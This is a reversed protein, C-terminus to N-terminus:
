PKLQNPNSQGSVFCHINGITTEAISQLAERTLFAHHSTLLVNRHNILALLIPDSIGESSYNHFFIGKENEYVDGGFYGVTGNNLADLLAKTDILGGRATNILMINKKMISFSHENLLHKTSHNLPAHLSIIDSLRFIDELSCYKVNYNYRLSGNQEIDYALINCGFGDLIKCMVAGIQGTGIIGVTKGQLNTGVLDDITFNYQKVKKDSQILHRSLALMLAISHEAIANPSYGPVYAVPINKQAAVNIDIHDYGTSRTVIFRIGEKALLEIVPASADDSTFLAVGACGKSLAVTNVSLGEEILLLEFQSNNANLLFEKEFAHISYVAIRNM